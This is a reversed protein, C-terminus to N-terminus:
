RYWKLFYFLLPSAVRYGDPSYDILSRNSLEEVIKTVTANSLKVISLFEKGAPYKIPGAKAIASIIIEQNASLNGLIGEFRARRQRVIVLVAEIIKKQTIKTKQYNGIFYSGLINIPEPNRFMLNQWFISDKLTLDLEIDAFRELIYEYYEEYPIDQFEIDSGFDAFPASPNSFMKTLIHKKSGMLIVPTDGLTQLANRFLGEAEDVETIDQFEDLIILGPMQSLLNKQILQFIKGISSGEDSASSISFSPEGTLPDITVVPKMGKLYKKIDELLSKKPFSDRFSEEFALKLRNSLSNMNKVQMLDAFLIFSESHKKKFDPIIVSKILSTKGMNRRGYVVMKEGSEIGHRLRAGERKLNCINERDLLVDFQFRKTKM